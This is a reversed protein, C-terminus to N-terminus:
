RTFNGTNLNNGCSNSADNSSTLCLDSIEYIELKSNRVSYIAKQLDTIDKKLPYNFSDIAQVLFDKNFPTLIKKNDIRRTQVINAVMGVRWKGPAIQQPPYVRQIALQSEIVQNNNSFVEPPTMDAIKELFGQRFDESLAFSAIWSSTAVRKLGQQTKIPIGMDPKPRTADDITVPPLAGSWNFTAAMTKSVFQRIVEPDRELNDTGSITNDTLQVLNPPKKNVVNRITLGQFLLFILSVFNLSLTAIIFITLFNVTTKKEQLLKTM